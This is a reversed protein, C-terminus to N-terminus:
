GAKQESLDILKKRIVDYVKKLEEATTVLRCEMNIRKFVNIFASPNGVGYYLISTM